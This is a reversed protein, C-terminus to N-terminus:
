QALFRNDIDCGPCAYDAEAGSSKAPSPARAGDRRRGGDGQAIDVHVGM